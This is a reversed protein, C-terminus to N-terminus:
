SFRVIQRELDVDDVRRGAELWANAQIHRGGHDNAWWAPYRHASRPLGGVLRSIEDFTLTAPRPADRLHRGLPEYKTL